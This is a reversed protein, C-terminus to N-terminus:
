EITSTVIIVPRAQETSAKPLQISLEMKQNSTLKRIVKSVQECIVIAVVSFLFILLLITLANQERSGASNSMYIVNSLLM